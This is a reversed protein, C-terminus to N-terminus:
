ARRGGVWKVEECVDVYFVCSEFLFCPFISSVQDLLFHERVLALAYALPHVLFLKRNGKRVVLRSSPTTNGQREHIRLTIAFVTQVYSETYAVPSFSHNPGKAM